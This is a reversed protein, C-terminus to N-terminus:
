FDRLLNLLNESIGNQTAKFIIGYHWVKHFAKSIDLFVSRVELGENFSSYMEHSIYLLQNICSDESIFGSQSLFRLTLGLVINSM